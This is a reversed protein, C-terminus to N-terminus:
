PGLAGIPIVQVGDPRVYGYGIGVIVGLSAPEGCKSTDIQAHFRKLSAAAEEVLAAGGLKVEFAAWADPTVVVADVEDGVNNRFQKVEGELPQAFIRLDRVVLSEFLLGLLNLDKALAGSSTRLAAVALSPDVFHRKEAGRLQHRSRLHPAWAPQNETVFLRDLAGLYESATHPKLGNSSGAVDAALTSVAVHTAVNRGLSQLLRGVKEPDRRVGEVSQIDVRRIQDLYDRVAERAASEGLLRTGPWGGRAIQEALDPVTIGPDPCPEFKGGLLDRMSIAGSSVGAEFLSMPRMRLRSFRMAGSHRTKDDSPSASGTLVFQGPERRDDVAHRVLNWVAPEVQWEDILRPVAGTLVVDPAVQVAQRAELDVDLRVESAAVRRATETKGCAKTGEVLVAGAYELKRALEGDAVRPEYAM